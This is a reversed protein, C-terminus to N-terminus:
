NALSQFSVVTSFFWCSRFTSAEINCLPQWQCVVNNKEEAKATNKEREVCRVVSDKVSNCPSSMIHNHTSKLHLQLCVFVSAFLLCWVLWVSVCICIYATPAISGLHFRLLLAQVDNGCCNNTAARIRQANSDNDNTDATNQWKLIILARQLWAAFSCTCRM